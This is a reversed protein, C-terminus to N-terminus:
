VHITIANSCVLVQTACLRELCVHLQKQDDRIEQLANQQNQLVKELADNGQMGQPEKMHEGLLMKLGMHIEYFACNSQTGTVAHPMITFPYEASPNLRRIM